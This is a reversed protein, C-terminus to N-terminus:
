PRFPLVYKQRYQAALKEAQRRQEPTLTKAVSDVLKEARFEGLESASNAWAFAQVPDLQVGRGEQYLSALNLQAGGHGQEAAKLFWGAAETPSEPVGRGQDYLVGLDNQASAYGQGASKRLWTKAREFDRVVGLGMAYMIGLRYEARVNGSEALPKFNTFAKKYDGRDLADLGTAFDAAFLNSSALGLVVVALCEMMCHTTSKM